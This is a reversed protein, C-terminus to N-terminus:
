KPIATYSPTPTSCEYILLGLAVLVPLYWFYNSSPINFAEYIDNAVIFMVLSVFNYLLFIVTQICMIAKNTAAGIEFADIKPLVAFVMGQGVLFMMTMTGWDNLFKALDTCQANTDEVGFFEAGASCSFQTLCFLMGVTGQILWYYNLTNFRSM